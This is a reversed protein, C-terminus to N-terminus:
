ARGLQRILADILNEGPPAARRRSRLTQALEAPGLSRLDARILIGAVATQVRWSPTSAYLRILRALIERDALHHRGLAELAGVQTESAPMDAVAASVRRLEATDTIPRQRLYTRAVEVEATQASVLGLVTRERAAPDGLCARLAAHSLSDAPMVPALDPGPLGDLEGGQNLTCALEVEAQGVPGRALVDGLMRATERLREDENLWGLTQALRLLRARVAPHDADRAFALFRDRAHHDQAIRDLALALEPAPTTSDALGSLLRQIRDLHVRMQSMDRQLLEHVFDVRQAQTLRTDTFQCIDHRVHAHPDLDTMGRTSTMAYAAFQGLLLPSSRGTGIEGSGRSRFYADLALAAVPGLPAVSSFGYIVPVDKFVLRMRDRSSQGHEANLARLRQETDRISHGERVLGRVIEATATSLASANLTNCGFLHVEKLLAFLVPCTNSCAVRELEDVPLFESGELRDSFFENGGDYHGSIVLVDCRTQAQCASALWDPRGREVLEVFRSGAAPLHRQFANKEDPSNVTITCVTQRPAVPAAGSNTAVPPVACVAGALLAAVPPRM